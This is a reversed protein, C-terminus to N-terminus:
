LFKLVLVRLQLLKQGLLHNIARRLAGKKEFFGSHCWSRRAARQKRSIQSAPRRFRVV